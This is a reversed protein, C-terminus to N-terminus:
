GEDPDLERLEARQGRHKGPKFDNILRDLQGRWLPRGARESSVPWDRGANTTSAVLCGDNGGVYGPRRSQTM